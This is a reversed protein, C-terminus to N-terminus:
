AGLHTSNSPEVMNSIALQKAGEPLRQVRKSAQKRLGQEGDVSALYAEV